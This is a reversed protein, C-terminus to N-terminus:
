VADIRISIEEVTVPLKMDYKDIQIHWTPFGDDFM